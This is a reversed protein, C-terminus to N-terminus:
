RAILINVHTDNSNTYPSLPENESDIYNDLQPSFSQFINRYYPTYTLISSLSGKRSDISLSYNINYNLTSGNNRFVSPTSLASDPSANQKGFVTTSQITAPTHNFRGNVLLGLVQNKSIQYDIGSQFSYSNNHYIRNTTDKLEQTYNSLKIQRDDQDTYAEVYKSYTFRNFFTIKDTKYTLGVTANANAYVGQSANVTAL